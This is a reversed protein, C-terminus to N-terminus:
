PPRRGVCAACRPAQVPGLLHLKPLAADDRFWMAVDDDLALQRGRGPWPGAPSARSSASCNRVAPRSRTSTPRTRSPLLRAAAVLMTATGNASQGHGGDITVETDM